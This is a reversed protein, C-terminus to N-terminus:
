DAVMGRGCDLRHFIPWVEAAVVLPDQQYTALEAADVNVGTSLGHKVRRLRGYEARCSLKKAVSVPM